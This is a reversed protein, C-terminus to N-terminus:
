AGLPVCLTSVEFGNFSRPCVRCELPTVGTDQERHGDVADGARDEEAAGVAVDEWGRSATPEAGKRGRGSFVSCQVSDKLKRIRAPGVTRLQSVM